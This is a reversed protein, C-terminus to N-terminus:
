NKLWVAAETLLLNEGQYILIEAPPSSEAAMVHIPIVFTLDDVTFSYSHNGGSGHNELIGNESITYANVDILKSSIIWSMYRYNGDNLKDIRVHLDDTDFSLVPYEYNRLSIPLTARDAEILENQQTKEVETQYNLRILKGDTDLWLKGNNFMTGRWGVEAWASDIVSEAILELFPTDFLEDFRELFDEENKVDPLPYLRRLPYHVMTSLEAWNETQITTIFHQIVEKEAHTFEQSRAQLTLVFTGVLVAIIKKFKLNM